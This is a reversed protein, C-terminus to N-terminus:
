VRRSMKKKINKGMKSMNQNHKQKTRQADARGRVAKSKVRYSHQIMKFNKTKSKEENSLGLGADKFKHGRTNLKLAARSEEAKAVREERSLKKKRTVSAFDDAQIDTYTGAAIASVRRGEEVMDEILVERQRKRQGKLGDLLRQKKLEEIRAFDAPTLIRLAARPPLLQKAEEAKIAAATAAAAIADTKADGTSFAVTKRSRKNVPKVEKVEEEEEEEDDADSDLEGDDEDGELMDMMDDGELDIEDGEGDDDGELGDMDFEDGEAALSVASFVGEIDDGELPIDGEGDFLRDFQDPDIELEDM